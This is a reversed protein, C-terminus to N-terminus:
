HEVSFSSLSQQKGDDYIAFDERKLGPVIRGKNDRVVAGIRVLRSEARLIQPQPQYPRSSIRVEDPSLTQGLATLALLSVGVAVARSKWAKGSSYTPTNPMPTGMEIRGSSSRSPLDHSRCLDLVPKM